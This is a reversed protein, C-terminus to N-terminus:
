IEQVYNILKSELIKAQNLTQPFDTLVVGKISDTNLKTLEQILQQEEKVKPKGKKNLAEEKIKTLEETIEKRRKHKQIIEELIQNDSKEPFDFKLYEFLLNVYVDDINQYKNTKRSERLILAIKKIDSFKIEDKNKEEQLQDIQNKKLSKFKPNAEIPTELKELIELSKNILDEINYHKFPYLDCIMKAQTRKGGFSYGILSLKFPIYRLFNKSKEIKETFKLDILIDIIDGFFANKVPEKPIM